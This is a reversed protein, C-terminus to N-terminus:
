CTPPPPPAMTHFHAALEPEQQAYVWASGGVKYVYTTPQVEGRVIMGQIVEMSYPGTTQGDVAVYFSSAAQATQPHLAHGMMQGLFQGMQQGMGLGMGMGMFTGTGENGAMTHAIDLQKSQTYNIGLKSLRAQEAVGEMVKEYSPDMEDFGVNSVNFNLLELGYGEFIPQLQEAILAALRKYEPGIENVNIKEERIFKAITANATEEIDKRFIELVEESTFILQTGVLKQLLLAGDKVRIGYQGSAMVKLPIQFYSDVVRLNWSSWPLDRLDLKSVFWVTAKFTSEGGSPLNIIKNLLPINETSLVYRGATFKDCLAGDRYFYAEQSESVTLVSGLTIDKFPFQYVLVDNGIQDWYISKILLNKGLDFM